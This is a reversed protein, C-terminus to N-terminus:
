VRFGKWVRAWFLWIKRFKRNGTLSSPIILRPWIGRGLDLELKSKLDEFRLNEIKFIGDLVSRAKDRLCAALAVTKHSNNWGNVRAILEFQTLFERLPVGGDYNDLKLKYGLEPLNLNANRARNDPPSLQTNSLLRLREEMARLM